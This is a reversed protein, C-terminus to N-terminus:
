PMGENQGYSWGHALDKLFCLRQILDISVFSSARRREISETLMALNKSLFFKAFPTYGPHNPAHDCRGSTVVIPTIGDSVSYSGASFQESFMRHFIFLSLTKKHM